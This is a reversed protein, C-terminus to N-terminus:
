HTLVRDLELRQWCTEMEMLSEICVIGKRTKRHSHYRRTCAYYIRSRLYYFAIGPGLSVLSSSCIMSVRHVRPSDDMRSTCSAKGSFPRGAYVVMWVVM